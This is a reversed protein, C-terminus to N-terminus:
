DVRQVKVLISEKRAGGVVMSAKLISMVKRVVGGTTMGEGDQEGEGCEEEGAGVRASEM